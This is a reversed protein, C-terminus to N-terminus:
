EQQVKQNHKCNPDNCCKGAAHLQAILQAKTVSEEFKGVLVGPPAMVVLLSRGADTTNVNIDTLFRRETPDSLAVSFIATRALFDPDAMFEAAGFPLPSQEAAKVHVIVIKKDQLAKVVDAGSPSLLAGEVAEDNLKRVFAGTIAGNPAVCLVTPMPVRRVQYQEIVARNAEDNVQVSQWEARDSRKAVATKLTATIKQTNADNDKWFLILKFKRAQEPAAVARDGNAVIPAPPQGFVTVASSASAVLCLAARLTVRM